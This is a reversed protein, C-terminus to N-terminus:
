NAIKVREQQEASHSTHMARETEWTSKEGKLSEIKDKEKHLYNIVACLESLKSETGDATEGESPTGVSSDAAQRIRATRSSVNDLHQHLM